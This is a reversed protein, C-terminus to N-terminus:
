PDTSGRLGAKIPFSRFGPRGSWQSTIQLIGVSTLVVAIGATQGIDLREGLFHWGLLTATVPSLLGLASVAVPPLKSLGRFWLVYALVTGFLSLYAYGIWQVTSLPPLPFEWLLAPGLLMFGGLTLKWGIFPLLPMDNRWRLAFFTGVAMCAAGTFAAAVGLADLRVGPSFFVGGMGAMGLLATALTLAHPRRRDLWWILFVIMLPQLASVLAAISGPLRQAAVFLLSQFAAINLLSVVLLRRWPVGPRFNGTVLVLAIGAPLTRLAATTLPLSPPLVETSLVYTTGWIIPTFSTVLTTVWTDPSSGTKM